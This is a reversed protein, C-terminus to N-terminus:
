YEIDVETFSTDSVFASTDTMGFGMDTTSTMDFGVDTTSTMDFGIGMNSQMDISQDVDINVNYTNVDIVGLSSDMFAADNVGSMSQLSALQANLQELELNTQTQDNIIITDANLQSQATMQNLLNLQQLEQQQQLQLLSNMNNMNNNNNNQTLNDIISLGEALASHQNGQQGQGQFQNAIIQVGLQEIVSSNGGNQGGQALSQFQQTQQQQQLNMMQLQQQLAQIQQNQVNTNLQQQMQVQNYVAPAGNQASGGAQVNINIQPPAQSSGATAPTSGPLIGTIPNHPKTPPRPQPTSTMPPGPTAGPLIGTIPNHLQSHGLQPTSSATSAVAHQPQPLPQFSNGTMATIPNQPLSPPPFQTTQHHSVTQQQQQNPSHVPSPGGSAVGQNLPHNQYYEDAQGGGSVPPRAPLSNAHNLPLPSSSPGHVQQHPSPSNAYQPQSAPAPYSSTPPYPHPQSGAYPHLNPSSGHVNPSNGSQPTFQQYGSHSPTPTAPSSFPQNNAHGPQSQHHNQHGAQGAHSNLGHHDHPQQPHPLSHVAHSDHQNGALHSGHSQVANSHGLSAQSNQQPGAFHSDHSQQTHPHGPASQSEHQQGPSHNSGDLHSVSSGNNTHQDSSTPNTASQQTGSESGNEVSPQHYNGPHDLHHPSSEPHGAPSPAQQAHDDGANPSSNAEPAIHDASAQESPPIPAMDHDSAHQSVEHTNSAYGNQESPPIPAIDAESPSPAMSNNAAGPLSNLESAPIPAMESDISHVSPAAIAESPPIPAMHSSSLGVGSTWQLESAPIPAMGNPDLNSVNSAMNTQSTAISSSNYDAVGLANDPQSLPTPAVSNVNSNYPSPTSAVAIAHPVSSAGGLTIPTPQHLVGAAVGQSSPIDTTMQPTGAQGQGLVNVATMPLAAAGAQIAAQNQAQLQQQQQQQLQLQLIKQKLQLQALANANAAQAQQNPQNPRQNPRIRPIRVGTEQQVYDRAAQVGLAGAFAAMKKGVKKMSDKDINDVMNSAKNYAAKSASASGDLMAKSANKLAPQLSKRRVEQYIPRQAESQISPLSNQQLPVGAAGLGANLQALQQNMAIQSMSPTTPLQPLENTQAMPTIPTISSVSSNSTTSPSKRKVSFSPQLASQQQQKLAAAAAKARQAMMVKAIVMNNAQKIPDFFTMEVAKACAHRVPM